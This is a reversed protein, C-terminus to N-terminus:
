WIPVKLHAVAALGGRRCVEVSATDEIAWRGMPLDTCAGEAIRTALQRQMQEADTIQGMVLCLWRAVSAAGYIACAADADDLTWPRLVLRQTQIRRSMPDVMVHHRQEHM